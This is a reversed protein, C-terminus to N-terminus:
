EKAFLQEDIRQKQRFHHRMHMEAFQLWEAASFFYFGPHEVKGTAASIDASNCLQNVEAKISLLSQQLSTKSEPQSLDLSNFPNAMRADPFGNQLFMTKADARMEKEHDSNDASLAAKMQGIYWATDAIIHMYVQGLSWSAADPRQHLMSLTYDDLYAIWKDSTDNFQRLLEAAKNITM